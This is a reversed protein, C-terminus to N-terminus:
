IAERVMVVRNCEDRRGCKECCELAEKPEEEEPVVYFGFQGWFDHSDVCLLWCEKGKAREILTRALESGIGQNQFEPTVSVKSLEVGDNHEKLMGCGVIKGDAVAVIFKRVDEERIDDIQGNIGLIENINELDKEVADRIIAM